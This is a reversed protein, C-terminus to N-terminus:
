VISTSSRGRKKQFILSSMRHKVVNIQEIGREVAARFREMEREPNRTKKKQIAGIEMRRALVYARGRGFGPSAALGKLRGRWRQHAGAARERRRGEYSRLRRLAEVMRKHYEKREQEKIRLSDALRAQVIISSVQASITTLLRIEDRSFERRRSTQVVLVGLPLKQEILPVGLFSHFREEHTEPFYKYRPHALADVVMVPKMREIVLGTLGENIGMSVKGVSEAGLGMTARLTLRKKEQDLIYLSCVETAMRDAVIAVISNVTAQLDHSLNILTSIDELITLHPYPKTSAKAIKAM